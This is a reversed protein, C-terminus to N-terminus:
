IGRALGVVDDTRWAPDFRRAANAPADFEALIRQLYARSEPFKMRRDWQASIGMRPLLENALNLNFLEGLLEGSDGLYQMVFNNSTTKRPKASSNYYNIQKAKALASKTKGTDAFRDTIDFAKFIDAPLPDKYLGSCCASLYLRWRRAGLTQRIRNAWGTNLLNWAANPIQMHTIERTRHCPLM